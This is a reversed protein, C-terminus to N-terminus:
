VVCSARRMCYTPQSWAWRAPTEMTRMRKTQREERREDRRQEGREQRKSRGGRVPGPDRMARALRGRGRWRARAECVADGMGRASRWGGSGRCVECRGYDRMRRVRIGSERRAGCPPPMAAANAACKGCRAPARMASTADVPRSSTRRTGGQKTRRGRNETGRREKRKQTRGMRRM